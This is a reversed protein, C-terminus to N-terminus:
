PIVVGNELFDYNIACMKKFIIKALTAFTGNCKGVNVDINQIVIIPCGIFVMLNGSMKGLSHERMIRVYAHMGAESEHTM